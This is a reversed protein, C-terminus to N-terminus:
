STWRRPFRKTSPVSFITYAPPEEICKLFANWAQITLMHAEDVIYIKYESDISRESASAVINKVNDVGNNSAADIEIPHGLGGNIENAFIRALTTKGSQRPGTIGVVAFQSALRLLADKATREIM